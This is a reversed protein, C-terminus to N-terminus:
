FTPRIRLAPAPRPADPELSVDCHGLKRLAAIRSEAEDRQAVTFRYGDPPDTPGRNILEIFTKDGSEPHELSNALDKLFEELLSLTSRCRTWRHHDWTMPTPEGDPGIGKIFHDILRDAAEKGYGSLKTLIPDPM